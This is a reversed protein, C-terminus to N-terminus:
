KLLIVTPFGVQLVLYLYFISAQSLGNSYARVTGTKGLYYGGKPDSEYFMHTSSRKLRQMLNPTNPPLKKRRIEEDSPRKYLDSRDKILLKQLWNREEPKEPTKPEERKPQQYKTVYTHLSSSSLSEAVGVRCRFSISPRTRVQILLGAM